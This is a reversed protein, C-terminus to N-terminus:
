KGTQETKRKELVQQIERLKAETLIYRKKFVVAALALGLMPVGTMIFRLGFLTEPTQVPLTNDLRIVDLGVGAVLVSVASALKVVFTQMSFIVSENRSGNKMEGYEITDALFVTTLVTAVGFGFYIVFAAAGLGAISTVGASAFGFLAAYGVATVALSLYFLQTCSFRRRLLPFIAMSLIQAAGGISGFLSFLAENGIDYKFFYIGLQGTLYLSTNFIVIGAVVVLTQDNALMSRLMESVKPAQREVASKERVQCVCVIETIVFIVAVALAFVSFGLRESSAIVPVVLLTLITPIAYGVSSSTRGIVTLAERERGPSTIAPIMSWFPIDMLTYTVGWLLYAASAYVLLGSGQLGEPVSFMMYLVFANLLTGTFIWPRFRGFRTRTKEVLIGMIPDNFADFVMACMMMVGTFSASIGLIDNFYYLIFGSVLAYVLDKGFAGIGFGIKEKVTLM